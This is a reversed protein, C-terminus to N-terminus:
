CIFSYNKQLSRDFCLINIYHNNYHIAKSVFFVIIVVNIIILSRHESIIHPSKLTM